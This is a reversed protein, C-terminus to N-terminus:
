RWVGSPRSTVTCAGPSLTIAMRSSTLMPNAASLQWRKSSFPRANSRMRVHARREDQVASSVEGKLRSQAERLIARGQRPPPTPSHLFKGPAHEAGREEGDLVHNRRQLLSGAEADVSDRAALEGLRLRHGLLEAQRLGIAVVLGHQGIGGMSTTKLGNGLWRWTGQVAFAARAPLCTSQSFGMASSASSAACSM